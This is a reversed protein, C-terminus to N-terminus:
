PIQYGSVAEATLNKLIDMVKSQMTAMESILQVAAAFQAETLGPHSAEGIRKGGAM